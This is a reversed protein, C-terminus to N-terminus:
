ALLELNGGGDDGAQGELVVAHAVGKLLSLVDGRQMVGSSSVRRLGRLAIPSRRVVRGSSARVSGTVSPSQFPHRLLM